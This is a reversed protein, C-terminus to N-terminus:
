YSDSSCNRSVCCLLPVCAAPFFSPSLLCMSCFTWPLFPWLDQLCAASSGCPEDGSTEWPVDEAM